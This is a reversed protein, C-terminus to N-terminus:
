LDLKERLPALIDVTFPLVQMGRQFKLCTSEEADWGLTENRDGGNGETSEYLTTGLTMHGRQLKSIDELLSVM